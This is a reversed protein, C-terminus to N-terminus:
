LDLCSVELQKEQVAVLSACVEHNVMKDNTESGTQVACIDKTSTSFFPGEDYYKRHTEFGQSLEMNLGTHVSSMVM